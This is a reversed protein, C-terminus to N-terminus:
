HGHWLALAAFWGDPMAVRHLSWHEPVYPSPGAGLRPSEGLEVDLKRFPAVLGDATAKSMAEKYTWYRLFLQQRAGPQLVALTSQERDTLFKRALRDAGVNRDAREVDVGVRTGLNASRAIAFLAVDHTHSVNFDIGSARDALEPRGRTGRVIAVAAPAVDLAEGLLHRLSARGVIWRDRLGDTGFRAARASEAASLWRRLRALEDPPRVLGCWWLTVGPASPALRRPVEPLPEQPNAPTPM